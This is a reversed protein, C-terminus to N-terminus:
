KLRRKVWVPRGFTAGSRREGTILLTKFGQEAAFAMVYRVVGLLVRVGVDIKDGNGAYVALGRLELTDGDIIVQSITSVQGAQSDFRFVIDKGHIFTSM